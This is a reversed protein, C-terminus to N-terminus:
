VIRVTYWHYSPYTLFMWYVGRYGDGLIRAQFQDGVLEFLGRLRLVAMEIERVGLEAVDWEFGQFCSREVTM